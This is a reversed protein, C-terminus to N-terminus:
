ASASMAKMLACLLQNLNYSDVPAPSMRSCWCVSCRDTCLRDPDDRLRVELHRIDGNMCSMVSFQYSTCVMAGQNAHRKRGGPRHVAKAKALWKYICPSTCDDGVITNHFPKSNDANYSYCVAHKAEQLLVSAVLALHEVM